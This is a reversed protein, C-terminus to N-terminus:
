SARELEVLEPSVPSEVEVAPVLGEDVEPSEPSLPSVPGTEYSGVATVVAV